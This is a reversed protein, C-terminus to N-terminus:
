AVKRGQLRWHSELRDCLQKQRTEVVALSWDKHELVQTTLVFPSVGGKAFYATKKRDFEWDERGDRQGGSRCSELFRM